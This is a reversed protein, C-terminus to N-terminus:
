PPTAAVRATAPAIRLRAGRTALRAVTWGVAAGVMWGVVVDLVWHAGVYVRSIGGLVALPWAVAAERRRRGGLYAALTAAASAHGSPMSGARLPALLVHVHDAGLVALPRPLHVAHKLAQVVVGDVALALLIPLAARLVGPRPRGFAIAWAVVVLALVWGECLLSLTAMIPDLWPRALAHQVALFPDFAYPLPM